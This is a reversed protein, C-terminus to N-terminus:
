GASLLGAASWDGNAKPALAPRSLNSVRWKTPSGLSRYDARHRNWPKDVLLLQDFRGSAEAVDLHRDYDEVMMAVRGLHRCADAKSEGQETVIVSHFPIRHCEMWTETIAKGKPHFGRATAFHIRAGQAHLHRIWHVTGPLPEARELLRQRAMLDLIDEMSMPYLRSLDYTTWENISLRLGTALNLAPRLLQSLNAIVDDVDFICVPSDGPPVYFSQPFM